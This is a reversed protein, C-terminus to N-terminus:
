FLQNAWRKTTEVFSVGHGLILSFVKVKLLFNPRGFRSNTEVELVEYFYAGGNTHPVVEGTGIIVDGVEPPNRLYWDKSQLRPIKLIKDTNM